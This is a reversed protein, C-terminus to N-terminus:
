SQHGKLVPKNAYYKSDLSMSVTYNVSMDAFHELFLQLGEFTSNQEASKGWYNGSNCYHYLGAPVHHSTM